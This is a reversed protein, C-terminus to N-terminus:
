YCFRLYLIRSLIHCTFNWQSSKVTKIQSSVGQDYTQWSLALSCVFIGADLKESIRLNPDCSSSRKGGYLTVTHFSSIFDILPAFSPMNKEGEAAHATTAAPGLLVQQHNCGLANGAITTCTSPAAPTRV